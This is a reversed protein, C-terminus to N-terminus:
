LLDIAADRQTPTMEEFGVGQRVYFHQNMWKRWEPDDVSFFRRRENNPTSPTSSPM